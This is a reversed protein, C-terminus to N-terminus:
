NSRPIVTRKNVSIELSYERESIYKFTCVAGLHKNYASCSKDTHMYFFPSERCGEFQVPFKEEFKERIYNRWNKLEEM